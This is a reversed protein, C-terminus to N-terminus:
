LHEIMVDHLYVTPQSRRQGERKHAQCVKATIDQKIPLFLVILLVMSMYAHIGFYCGLFVSTCVTNVEPIVLTAQWKIGQQNVVPTRRSNRITVLFGFRRIKNM